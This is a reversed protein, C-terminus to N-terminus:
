RRARGRGGAAGRRSIKTGRPLLRLLAGGLSSKGCGSEGALGLTEGPMLDLDVGRVAELPGASTRYAVRLDRVSLLPPAAVAAPVTEASM